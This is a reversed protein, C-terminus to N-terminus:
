VIAEEDDDPLPTVMDAVAVTSAARLAERAARLAKAPTPYKDFFIMDVDFDIKIVHWYERDPERRGSGTTYDGGFELVDGAKVTTLDVIRGRQPLYTRTMRAANPGTLQAAWNGGRKHTCYCPSEVSGGDMPWGCRGDGGTTEDAADATQIESM